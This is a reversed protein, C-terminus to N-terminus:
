LGQWELGVGAGAWHFAVLILMEIGAVGVVAWHSVRLMEIVAVGAGAGHVVRMM